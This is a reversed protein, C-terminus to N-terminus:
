INKKRKLIEIAGNTAIAAIPIVIWSPHWNNGLFGLLLFIMTALPMTIDYLWEYDQENQLEQMTKEDRLLLNYKSQLIGYVVFLYVAVAIAGFFPILILESGITMGMLIISIVSFICLVIGAVIAFRYKPKFDNYNEKIRIIDVDNLHYLGKEIDSYDQLQFGFTVFIAVSAAILTLMIAVGLGQALISGLVSIIIMFVGLAVMHSYKDIFSIYIDLKEAPLYEINKSSHNTENAIIGYAEKLENIDGFQAIVMGVAEHKSKGNTILDDYKNQMSEWINEQLDLTEKTKPFDQLMAELYNKLIDM